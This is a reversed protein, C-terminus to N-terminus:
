FLSCKWNFEPFELPELWTRKQNTDIFHIVKIVPDFYQELGEIELAAILIIGFCPVLDLSFLRESSALLDFFM